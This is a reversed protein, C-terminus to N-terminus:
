DQLRLYALYEAVLAPAIDDGEIEISVDLYLLLGHHGKREVKKLEFRARVNSDVEVPQVMRVRDFGYNLPYAVGDMPVTLSRALKPLQALLLFEQAITTGFPSENAARAPDVHIWSDDGTNAAHVDILSQDIRMWESLGVEKGVYDQLTDFLAM